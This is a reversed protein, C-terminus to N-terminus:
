KKFKIGYLLIPPCSHSPSHITLHFVACKFTLPQRLDVALNFISNQAQDVCGIRSRMWSLRAGKLINVLTKVIKTWYKKNREDSSGSTDVQLLRDVWHMWSWGVKEDMKVEESGKIVIKTNRYANTSFQMLWM